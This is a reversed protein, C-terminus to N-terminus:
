YTIKKILLSDKFPINKLLNIIKKGANGDGYIRKAEQAKKRFNADFLATNIASSIENYNHDVHLVNSSYLRSNQRRGINIVPLKFYPSEIIGASSNGILVSAVNLLGWFVAADLNKYILINEHSEYEKIADVVGNYGVDSCPYIVVVQYKEKCVARLTEKMQKYSSQPSTTESHQLVVLIPKKIDLQLKEVIRRSDLYEGAVILDVHNDGVVNVRWDEEGMKLIRSASENTSACHINALKTISHRVQEDVSGSVDGGQLHVIPVGLVTAVQATVLVEGRDGYLICIDPNLQNFVETMKIMCVGLATSRAYSSDSEQEMDVTAAVTFEKVVEKITNGFKSDLHQDTLVLSLNFYEDDRLMRLMPKMAGFGGRKGSLVLVNM